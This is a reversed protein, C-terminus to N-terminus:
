SERLRNGCATCEWGFEETPPYGFFEMGSWATWRFTREEECVSCYLSTKQGIERDKSHAM